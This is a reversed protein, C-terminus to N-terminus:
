MTVRRCHPLTCMCILGTDIKLYHSRRFPSPATDDGLLTRFFAITLGCIAIHKLLMSQPALRRCSQSLHICRLYNVLISQAEVDVHGIKITCKIGEMYSKCWRRYLHSIYSEWWSAAMSLRSTSTSLGLCSSKPAPAQRRIVRCHRSSQPNTATVFANGSATRPELVQSTSIWAFNCCVCM